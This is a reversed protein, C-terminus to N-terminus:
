STTKGNKWDDFDDTYAHDPRALTADSSTSERHEDEAADHDEMMRAREGEGGGEAWPRETTGRRASSFGAADEDDSVDGLQWPAAGEAGDGEASLIGEEEDGLKSRARRRAKPPLSVM